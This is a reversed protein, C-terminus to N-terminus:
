VVSSSSLLKNSRQEELPRSSPQKHRSINPDSSNRRMPPRPSSANAANPQLQQSDSVQRCNHNQQQQHQQQQQHLRADSCCMDHDDHSCVCKHCHTSDHVCKHYHAYSNTVHPNYPCAYPFVASATGSEYGVSSKRSHISSRDSSSGFQPRPFYPEMPNPYIVNHPLPNGHPTAATFAIQPNVQPPAIPQGNQPAQQQRENEQDSGVGDEGNGGDTRDKKNRLSRFIMVLTIGLITAVIV